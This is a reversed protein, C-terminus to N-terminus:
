ASRREHYREAVRAIIHRHDLLGVESDDDGIGGVLADRGKVAFGFPELAENMCDMTMAKMFGGSDLTITGDGIRVVDTDYLRVVTDSGEQRIKRNSHM